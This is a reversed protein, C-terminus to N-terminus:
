ILSQIFDSTLSFERDEFEFAITLRQRDEAESISEM